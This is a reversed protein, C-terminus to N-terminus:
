TRLNHSFDGDLPPVKMVAAEGLWAIAALLERATEGGELQSDNGHMSEISFLPSQSSGGKTRGGPTTAVMPVLSNRNPPTPPQRQHTGFPDIRRPPPSWVLFSRPGRSM